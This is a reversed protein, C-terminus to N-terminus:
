YLYKTNKLVRYVVFSFHCSCLQFFIIQLLSETICILAILNVCRLPLQTFLIKKGIQVNLNQICFEVSLFCIVADNLWLLSCLINQQHYAQNLKSLNFKRRANVKDERKYTLPIFRPIKCGNKFPNKNTNTQINSLVQNM